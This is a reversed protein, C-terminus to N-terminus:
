VRERCSARGIETLNIAGNNVITLNGSPGVGLGADGPTGNPTAQAHQPQNTLMVLTAGSAITLHDYNGAGRLTWTGSGVNVTAFGDWGAFSAVKTTPNINESSGYLIGSGTGSLNITGTGSNAIVRGITTSGTVANFIDVGVGFNVAIGGGGSIVGSNTLTESSSAGGGFLNIAIASTSIISGSNSVAIPGTLSGSFGIGARISSKIAGANVITIGPGTAPADWLLAPAADVSITGGLQVIVADTGGLEDTTTQTQGSTVTLTSM